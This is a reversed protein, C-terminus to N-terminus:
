KDKLIQFLKRTKQRNYLYVALVVLYIDNLEVYKLSLIAQHHGNLPRFM